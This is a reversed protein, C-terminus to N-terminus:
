EAEDSTYIVTDAHGNNKDELKERKPIAWKGLMLNGRLVLLDRAM